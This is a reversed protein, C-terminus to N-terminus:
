RELSLLSTLYTTSMKQTTKGTDIIANGINVYDPDNFNPIKTFQWIIEKADDHTLDVYPMEDLVRRYFAVFYEARETKIGLDTAIAAADKLFGPNIAERGILYQPTTAYSQFRFVTLLGQQLEVYDAYSVFRIVVKRDSRQDPQLQTQPPTLSDGFPAPGPEFEPDPAPEQYKREAMDECWDIIDDAAERVAERYGPSVSLAAIHVVALTIVAFVLACVLIDGDVIVFCHGSPDVRTIPNGGAYNWQNLSQPQQYNGPWTDATVFQGTATSLYRARLYTLNSADRQEGTFQFISNGSGMSSLTNGFPEYSKTLTLAGTTSVLQRVSGLADGLFYDTSTASQQAIRSNGYLYTNTGDALVQTLGTALDLTYNTAAGNITQKLRDGLGNYTFAYTNTGQTVTKLRNAKDYAYTSM